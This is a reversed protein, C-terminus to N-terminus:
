LSQRCVATGGCVSSKEMPNVSSLIGRCRARESSRERTWRICIEGSGRREGHLPTGQTTLCRQRCGSAPPLPSRRARSWTCPRRAGRHARWQSQVGREGLVLLEICMRARALSGGSRARDCSTGRPPSSEHCGTRNGRAGPCTGCLFMMPFDYEIM